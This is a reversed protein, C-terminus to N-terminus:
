CLTIGREMVINEQFKKEKEGMKIKTPVYPKVHLGGNRICRVINYGGEREVQINIRMIM